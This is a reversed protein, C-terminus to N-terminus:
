TAAKRPMRRQGAATEWDIRYTTGSVIAADTITFVGSGNTSIGTSRLVLAGTTDNYLAVHALSTSALLTGNNTRLPESTITGTTVTGSFSGAVSVGDLAINGTFVSAAARTVPHPLTGASVGGSATLTRTGGISTYTGGANFTELAWGDVWGSVAEPLVAGTRINEVDTATLAVNYFHAEAVEGNTFLGPSGSNFHWAGVTIRDHNSLDDTVSVTSTTGANSGYYMTRSTTSAFVAAAIQLSSSGPNPSATRTANDGGGPNRHAAYKTTGNPDLWASIYRDANSQQQVAWMQSSGTSSASSFVVITGPLASIIRGPFELYGTSGNLALTM